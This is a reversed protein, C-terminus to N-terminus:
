SPLGLRHHEGTPRAACHIFVADIPLSRQLPLLHELIPERAACSSRPCEAGRPRHHSARLLSSVPLRHFDAVPDPTPTPLAFSSSCFWTSFCRSGKAFSLAFPILSCTAPARALRQRTSAAWFRLLPLRSPSSAFHLLPYSLPSRRTTAVPSM